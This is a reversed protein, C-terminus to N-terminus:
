NPAVEYECLYLNDEVVQKAIRPNKKYYERGGEKLIAPREQPVEPIYLPQVREIEKQYQIDDIIEKEETKFKIVEPLKTIPANYKSLYGKLEAYIGMLERLDNVLIEDTAMTDTSYFKGCIHGLEYGKALTTRADLKVDMNPFNIISSRVLERCYMASKRIELKAKTIGFTREYDTWGQNLSIYVGKGFANFLYVIYYGNQAGATVSRDGIFIWPVHAINGKGHGGYIRFGDPISAVRRIEKPGVTDIDPFVSVPNTPYKLCINTLIERLM